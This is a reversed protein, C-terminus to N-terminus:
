IENLLKEEMFKFVTGWDDQRRLIDVGSVATNLRRRLVDVNRYWLTDSTDELWRWDPKQNLLLWTQVGLGGAMHATTNDISIVLDCAAVQTAFDDLNKMQNISKDLYIKNQELRSTDLNVFFYKDTNVM